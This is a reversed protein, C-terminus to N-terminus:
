CSRSTKMTCRCLCEHHTFDTAQFLSRRGDSLNCFAFPTSAYTCVKGDVDVASTMMEKVEEASFKEGYTTMLRQLEDQTPSITLRLQWPREDACPPSHLWPVQELYGKKDADLAQFAALIDDEGNRKHQSAEETLLRIM